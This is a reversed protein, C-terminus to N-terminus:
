IYNQEQDPNRWDKRTVPEDINALQANEFTLSPKNWARKLADNNKYSDKLWQRFAQLRAPNKDQYQKPHYFWEETFGSAVHIGALYNSYKSGLLWDLCDRFVDGTKDRWVESAFCQRFTTGDPLHASAEPYLKTWWEPPDLYFRIIVKAKPDSKIIKEFDKVM